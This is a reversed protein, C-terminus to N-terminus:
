KAWTLLRCRWCAAPLARFTAQGAGEGGLQGDETSQAPRGVGGVRIRLVSVQPRFWEAQLEWGLCVKRVNECRTICTKACSKQDMNAFAKRGLENREKGKRRVTQNLKRSDPSWRSVPAPRLEKGSKGKGRTDGWPLIVLSSRKGNTRSTMPIQDNTMPIQSKSQTMPGQSQTM